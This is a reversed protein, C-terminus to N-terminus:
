KNQIIYQHSSFEKSHFGKLNSILGILFASIFNTKQYKNKESLLSVYFSDFYMPLTKQIKMQHISFLSDIAARSFHWLHRPVDYAAWFEKYYTADYSKFNPVAVIVTGNPKLVRKLESITGNLDQIHELVHWLTIVDFFHDEFDSLTEAYCIGKEKGINKAKENPEIGYTKWQNNKAQVLFDGTGAGFDLVKGKDLNWYEILKVKKKLNFIKIYQYLKETFNRQHDTHSIYDESEYYKAIKKEDPQPHTKLVQHDLDMILSFKEHSVTFDKVELFPVNSFEFYNSEM